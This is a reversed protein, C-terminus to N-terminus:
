VRGITMMCRTSPRKAELTVDLLTNKGGGNLVLQIPMSGPAAQCRNTRALESLEHRSVHLSALYIETSLLVSM